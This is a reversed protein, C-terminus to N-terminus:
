KRRKKNFNKGGRHNPSGGRKGGGRGRDRGRDKGRMGGRVRAHAEMGPLDASRDHALAFVTSGRLPDAEMLTVEVSATLRFVYGHDQGILAHQSEDHIYYDDPLTSIPVIGEAGSEVLRVFIGFRSVGSIRASFKAGIRDQLFSATFRDVSDREAEVSRRETASIQDAIDFLRAEEEDTLGDDGLGFARILSRHVILDAYRRIPSTFHAYRRLALGFHGINKPSYVAQSQCRLVIESILPGEDRDRAKELIGNIHSPELVQGKALNYGVAKLFERVADLKVNDPRDHVRYICPKDKLELAEAVAVNALVMFEEIMKHSDLRKRANIAAVRGKDDLEIKREPVDLELAGRAERAKKLTEFAGYLPITIADGGKEHIEQVQEYTLRARSRMLGRVVRQRTLDGAANIWMHVAMCAREVDPKLSCLENSLAEPLMPVVRDAFYTSNGRDFADRDLASGPKVYHSVDAIAVLLHWGDGDKEAWVADDFDRADPGDITVLDFGRLDDRKGLPPVTINETERLAGKSFEFPLALSHISILSIIGPDGSAGLRELVRAQKKGRTSHDPLIEGMVLEDTKAGNVDKQPVEYSFKSKKSVPNLWGGQKTSQFFGVVRGVAGGMRRLMKGKYTRGEIQKLQALLQTGKVFPSHGHQEPEMFIVPPPGDYNWKVPRALIEGDPSEGLIEVLAVSSLTQPIIYNKGRDRAIDGRAELERLLNKLPIRDDGKLNFARALERKGVPVDSTRIFDIIDEASPLGSNKRNSM